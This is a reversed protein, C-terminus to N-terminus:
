EGVNMAELPCTGHDMGEFAEVFGTLGERTQILIWPETKSYDLHAAKQAADTEYERADWKQDHFTAWEGEGAYTILQGPHGPYYEFSGVRLIKTFLTRDKVVEGASIKGVVPSREDAQEHLNADCVVNVSISEECHAGECWDVLFPAPPIEKSQLTVLPLSPFASQVRDKKAPVQANLNLTLSKRWDGLFDAGPFHETM